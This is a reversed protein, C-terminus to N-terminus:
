IFRYLFTKSNLKIIKYRRSGFCNSFGTFVRKNKKTVKKEFITLILSCSSAPCSIFWNNLIYLNFVFSYDCTIRILSHCQDFFDSNEDTLFLGVRAINIKLFFFGNLVDRAWWLTIIRHFAQHTRNQILIILFGVINRDNM